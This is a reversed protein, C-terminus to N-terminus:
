ISKLIFNVMNPDYHIGIVLDKGSIATSSENSLSFSLGFRSNLKEIVQSDIKLKNNNPDVLKFTVTATLIMTVVDFRTGNGIYARLQEQLSKSSGIDRKLTSYIYYKPVLTTKTNSYQVQARVSSSSSGTAKLVNIIELELNASAARAEVSAIDWGPSSSAKDRPINPQYTIEVKEPDSYIEVIQGPALSNSPFKLETFGTYKKVGIGPATCASLLVAILVVVHWKRM